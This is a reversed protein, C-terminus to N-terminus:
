LRDLYLIHITLLKCGKNPM